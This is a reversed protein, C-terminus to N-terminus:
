PLKMAKQLLLNGDKRTASSTKRLSRITRRKRKASSSREAITSRGRTRSSKQPLRERRCEVSGRASQKMKRANSSKRILCLMREKVCSKSLRRKRIKLSM